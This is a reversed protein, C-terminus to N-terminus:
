GGRERRQEDKGGAQQQTEDSLGQRYDADDSLVSRCTRIVGPRAFVWCSDVKKTQRVVQLSVGVPM